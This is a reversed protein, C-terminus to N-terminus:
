YPKKTNYPDRLRNAKDIKDSKKKRKGCEKLLESLSYGTRNSVMSAWYKLPTPKNNRYLEFIYDVAKNFQDSNNNM